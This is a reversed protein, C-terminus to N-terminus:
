MSITANTHNGTGYSSCNKLLSGNGSFVLERLHNCQNKTMPSEHAITNRYRNTVTELNKLFSNDIKINYSKLLNGLFNKYKKLAYEGNLARQLTFHYQGLTLTTIRPYNRQDVIQALYTFYRPKGRSEGVQNVMLFEKKDGNLFEVFPYVLTRNIETELAKCVEMGILSYDPTDAEAALMRFTHEATALYKRTRPLFSQWPDSGMITELDSESKALSSVESETKRESEESAPRIFDRESRDEKDKRPEVSKKIDTIQKEYETQVAELRQNMEGLRENMEKTMRKTKHDTEWKAQDAKGTLSEIHREYLPIKSRLEIIENMQAEIIEQYGTEKETKKNFFSLFETEYITKLKREIKKNGLKLKVAQELYRCATQKQRRKIAILGLHMYAEACFSDIQIAKKFYKRGAQPYRLRWIWGMLTAALIMASSILFLRISSMFYYPNTFVSFGLLIVSLIFLFYIPVFYRIALSNKTQSQITEIKKGHLRGLAVWQEADRPHKRACDLQKKIATNYVAPDMGDPKRM